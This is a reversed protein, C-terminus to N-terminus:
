FSYPTVDIHTCNTRRKNNQYSITNQSVRPKRKAKVNQTSAARMSKAIGISVSASFDRIAESTFPYDEPYIQRPTGNYYLMIYPVGEISTVTDRSMRVTEMNKDIDLVAFIVGNITGSVKKFEQLAYPSYRCKTPSYFLVVSFGKISNCLAVGESINDKGFNSSQLYLLGAVM